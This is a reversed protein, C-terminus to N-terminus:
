NGTFKPSRRQRRASRAEEVDKSGWCADYLEQLQSSLATDPYDAAYFAKVYEQALPALATIEAIYQERQAATEYVLSYFGCSELTAATLTQSGMLLARARAGGFTDRIQHLTWGDLAFGLRAVPIRLWAEPTGIRLDCALALQAGAGIVPGQIAAIIPMPAHKILELMAYFSETFTTGYVGSGREDEDDRTSGIDAGACFVTGEGRIVIARPRQLRPQSIADDIASAIAECMRANLANRQEPRNLTITLVREDRTVLVTNMNEVM